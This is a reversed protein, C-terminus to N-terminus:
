KTTLVTCYKFKDMGIMKELMRINRTGSGGMKNKTIDHLYLVGALREKLKYTTNLYEAINHLIDVDDTSDDDFGPSDILHIEYPINKYQYLLIYDQVERTVPLLSGLSLQM